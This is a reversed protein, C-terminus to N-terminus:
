SRLAWTVNDVVAVADADRLMERGLDSEGNCVQYASQGKGVGDDRYYGAAGQQGWLWRRVGAEEKRLASDITYMVMSM